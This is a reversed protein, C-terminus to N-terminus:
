ESASDTTTLGSLYDSLAATSLETKTMPKKEQYYSYGSFGIWCVVAAAIVVGLSRALVRNRKEKKMTQKRNKKEEKYRDVKAQSMIKMLEKKQKKQYFTYCVQLLEDIKGTVCFRLLKGICVM